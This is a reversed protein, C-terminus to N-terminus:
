DPVALSLAYDGDPDTWWASMRLGAQRYEAELRTRTFKASIETRIEEGASFGVELDLDDIRIQQDRESRLRMEIWQQQEDFRALHSFATLDFDAGLERNIVQLVNLNFRATVGQSDDYARVLRSRDQPTGKVLDTGLLFAEDPGLGAAVEGLFRAREDPVLNGITGGLFAILRRGTRPLQDLHREFDGLVAHVGVEPYEAAIRDAAALLASESVDFPVYGALTGARQLASLLLRTKESSGSGLEVLTDAGTVLAIQDSRAQLVARERGTPYYEPLRTIQEFLDSGVQDYFWKPPLLKPTATLGRRVDQRLAVASADPELHRELVILGLPHDTRASPTV